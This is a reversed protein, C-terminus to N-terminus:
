VPVAGAGIRDRNCNNCDNCDDARPPEAPEPLRTKLAKQAIWDRHPSRRM